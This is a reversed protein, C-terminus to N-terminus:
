WDFCFARYSSRVSFRRGDKRRQVFDAITDVDHPSMGLQRCKARVEEVTVALWREPRNMMDAKLKDEENWKLGSSYGTAIRAVYELIGDIGNALPELAGSEELEASQVEGDALLQIPRTDVIWEATENENWEIVVLADAESGWVDNLHKRDPWAYVVRQGDFSSANFDRWTRHVVDPNAVLRTLIGNPFDRRPTVVVVRGGSQDLLWTVARINQPERSTERSGVRSV